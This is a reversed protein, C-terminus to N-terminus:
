NSIKLIRIEPFYCSGGCSISDGLLSRRMSVIQQFDGELALIFTINGKISLKETIQESLGTVAGHIFIRDFAIIESFANIDATESVTINNLGLEAYIQVYDSAAETEEIVYVSGALKSLVAAAYGCNSGAILVSDSFSPALLDIANVIDAPSPLSGSYLGPLSINEYAIDEYASSLFRHRPIDRVADIISSNLGRDSAALDATLNLNELERDSVDSISSQGFVATPFILFISFVLASFYFNGSRFVMFFEVM